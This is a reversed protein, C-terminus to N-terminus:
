KIYKKLGSFRVKGMGLLMFTHEKKNQLFDLVSTSKIVWCVLLVILEFKVLCMLIETCMLTNIISIWPKLLLLQFINLLLVIFYSIEDNETYHLTCFAPAKENSTRLVNKLYYIQIKTLYSVSHTNKYQQISVKAQIHKHIKLRQMNNKLLVTKVASSNTIQCHRVYRKMRLHFM